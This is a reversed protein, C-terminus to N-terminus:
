LDCVVSVTENAHITKELRCKGKSIKELAHTLEKISFYLYRGNSAKYTVQLKGCSEQYSVLTLKGIHKSISRRLKLFDTYTNCTEMYISRSGHSSVYEKFPELFRITERSNKCIEWVEKWAEKTDM